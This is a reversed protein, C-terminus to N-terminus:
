VIVALAVVGVIAAAWFYAGFRRYLSPKSEPLADKLPAMSSGGNTNNQDEASHTTPSNM